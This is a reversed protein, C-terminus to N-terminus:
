YDSDDMGQIISDDNSDYEDEPVHTTEFCFAGEDIPEDRRRKGWSHFGDLGFDKGCRRCHQWSKKSTDWMTKCREDPHEERCVNDGPIQPDYEKKCRGCITTSKPPMVEKPFIKTLAKLGDCTISAEKLLRVIDEDKRKSLGCQIREREGPMDRNQLQLQENLFQRREDAKKAAEVAALKREEKLKAVASTDLVSDLAAKAHKCVYLKNSSRTADRQRDGDPCSCVVKFVKNDLISGTMHVEGKATITYVSSGIAQWRFDVSTGNVDSKLLEPTGATHWSGAVYADKVLGPIFTQSTNM